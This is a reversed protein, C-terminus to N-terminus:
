HVLVSGGIFERMISNNPIIADDEITEFFELFSLMRSAEAYQPEGPQVEEIYLDQDDIQAPTVGWALRTNRGSLIAPIGPITGGIVGGSALEIRALYWLGPATLAFQPDNALLAGAAATRESAAAFGNASAGLSPSLYGALTTQMRPKYQEAM